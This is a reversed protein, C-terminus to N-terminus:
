RHIIVVGDILYEYKNAQM